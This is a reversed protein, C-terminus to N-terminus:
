HENMLWFLMINTGKPPTFPVDINSSGGVSQSSQSSIAKPIARLNRPGLTDVPKAGASSAQLESSGSAWFRFCTLDNNGFEDSITVKLKWSRIM